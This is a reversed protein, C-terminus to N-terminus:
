APEPTDRAPLPPVYNNPGGQRRYHVFVRWMPILGLAFWFTSWLFILRYNKQMLDIYKGALFSGIIVGLGYGLVGMGSSFEAFKKQPFIFMNAANLGLAFATGPVTGVLTFALWSYYGRMFFYQLLSMLANVVLCGFFLRLPSIKKCLYGMPIFLVASMLLGYGGMPGISKTLGLTKKFFLYTIPGAASGAFMLAGYALIYNRYLPISLIDRFYTVYTKFTGRHQAAPDPPPYQGERVFICMLLFALLYFAGIATCVQRPYDVLYGFGWFLFVCGGLCAVVRFVTLFSIMVEMPVVDRLLCQYLNLMVMNFFHFSIVFVCLLTLGLAEASVGPAAHQTHRHLWAGLDPAFAVLMLSVATFPTSWLLFPIRRGLRGRYRDSWISINPGLFINVIGGTGVTMMSTLTTSAKLNDMYLPLFRGFISEFISNCFDGWLLWASLKVLGGRTYELTGTRYRKGGPTLDNPIAAPPEQITAM